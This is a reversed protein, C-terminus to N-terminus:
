EVVRLTGAQTEHQRRGRRDTAEVALRLRRGALSPDLRLALRAIATRGGRTVRSARRVVRVAGDADVLRRRVDVTVTGIESGDDVLRLRVDRLQRWSRPHRWSLRIRATEDARARVTTADLGLVGVREVTECGSTLGDLGADAQLTDIESGCAITDAEGDRARVVDAGGRADVTDRGAGPTLGDPGATGTIRDVGAGSVFTSGTSIVPSGALTDDGAGTLLQETDRVEDREGAEGDDAGGADVTVTVARTRARFDITDVGVGGDIRDAGDAQGGTEVIDNGFGGNLTDDGGLGVFRESTAAVSGSLADAFQSGQLVEVDDGIDDADVGPRGDNAQGDKTVVVGRTAAAYDITDRGADGTFDVKSASPGTGTVLTDDGDGGFLRTPLSTTTSLVDDASGLAISVRNAGSCLVGGSVSTCGTGAAVAERADAILLRGDARQSLSVANAAASGSVQLVTGEVGVSTAEAAGPLALAALAAPLVAALRARVGPRRRRERGLHDIPHLHM